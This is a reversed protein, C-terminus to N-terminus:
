RRSARTSWSSALLDAIIGYIIGVVCHVMALLIRGECLFVLSWLLSFLIGLLGGRVWPRLRISGCFGISLGILFREYFISLAMGLPNEGMRRMVFIFCLVGGATCVLISMMLRKALVSHNLNRENMSPNRKVCAKLFILM